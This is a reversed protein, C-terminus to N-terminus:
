RVVDGNGSTTLVDEVFEAMHKAARQEQERPSLRRRSRAAVEVGSLSDGIAYPVVPPASIPGLGCVTDELVQLIRLRRGHSTFQHTGGPIKAMQKRSAGIHQFAQTAGWREPTFCDDTGQLFLTPARVRRLTNRDPFLTVMRRGDPRALVQHAVHPALAAVGAVVGNDDVSASAKAAAVLAARGGDSHGAVVVRRLQTANNSISNMEASLWTAAHSIAQAWGDVTADGVSSEGYTLLAAAINRNGLDPVYALYDTARQQYGHMFVVAGIANALGGVPEYLIIDAGLLPMDAAAADELRTTTARQHGIFQVSRPRECCTKLAERVSEDLMHTDATSQNVFPLPAIADILDVAGSVARNVLWTQMPPTRPLTAAIFGGVAEDDDEDDDIVVANVTNTTTASSVESVSTVHSSSGGLLLARADDHTADSSPTPADDYKDNAVVVVVCLSTTTALLLLRRLLLLAM